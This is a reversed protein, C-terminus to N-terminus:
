FGGRQITEGPEITVWYGSHRGPECVSLRTTIGDLDHRTEKQLVQMWQDELLVSDGIKIRDFTVPQPDLSDARDLLRHAADLMGLAKHRLEAGLARRYVTGEHVLRRAETEPDTRSADIMSM